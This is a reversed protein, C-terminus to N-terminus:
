FTIEMIDKQLYIISGFGGRLYVNLRCSYM